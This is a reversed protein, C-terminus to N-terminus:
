ATWGSGMKDAVQRHGAARGIIQGGDEGALCRHRVLPYSGSPRRQRGGRAARGAVHRHHRVSRDRGTTAGERSPAAVFICVM